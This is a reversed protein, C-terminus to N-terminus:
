LRLALRGQRRGRCACPRRWVQVSPWRPPPAGAAAGLQEDHVLVVGGAHVPVEADLDVAHQARPRDRLRRRHVGIVLAERDLDLVVRELVHVEFRDDRVAVVAGARHDRPVAAHEARQDVGRLTHDVALDLELEIAVLQAAREREHVGALARAAPAAAAARVVPQQDLLAVLGRFLEERRPSGSDEALTSLPRVM